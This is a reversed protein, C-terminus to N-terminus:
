RHRAHTDGRSGGNNKPHTASLKCRMAYPSLEMEEAVHETQPLVAKVRRPVMPTALSNKTESSGIAAEYGSTSPTDDDEVVRDAGTSKERSVESTPQAKKEFQRLGDSSHPTYYNGLQSTWSSPSPCIKHKFGGSVRAGGSIELRRGVPRESPMRQSGSAKLWVVADKEPNGVSSRILGSAHVRQEADRSSPVLRMCGNLGFFAAMNAACEARPTGHRSLQRTTNPQSPNTSAVGASTTRIGDASEMALDGENSPLSFLRQNDYRRPSRFSRFLCRTPIDTTPPPLSVSTFGRADFSQSPHQDPATVAWGSTKYAADESSWPGLASQPQWNTGMWSGAIKSLQRPSAPQRPSTRGRSPQISRPSVPDVGVTACVRRQMSPMRSATLGQSRAAELAGDDIADLAPALVKRQQQTSKRTPSRRPSASSSEAAAAASM